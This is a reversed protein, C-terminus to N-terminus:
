STSARWNAAEKMDTLRTNAGSRGGGSEVPQVLLDSTLERGQGRGTVPVLAAKLRLSIAGGFWSRLRYAVPDRFVQAFVLDRHDFHGRSKRGHCM